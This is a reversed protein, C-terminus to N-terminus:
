KKNQLQKCHEGLQSFRRTARHSAHRLRNEECLRQVSERTEGGGIVRAAAQLFPVPAETPECAPVIRATRQKHNRVDAESFFVRFARGNKESM